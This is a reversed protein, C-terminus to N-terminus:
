SLYVDLLLATSYFDFGHLEVPDGVFEIKLQSCGTIDLDINCAATTTTIEGSEYILQDDVYILCKGSYGSDCWEEAVLSGTLRAFKKNPYFLMYGSQRGAYSELSITSFTLVNEYEEGFIDQAIEEIECGQSDEIVHCEALKIPLCATYEEIAAAFETCDYDPQVQEITQIAEAFSREAALASAQELTQKKLKEEYTTLLSERQESTGSVSIEERLYCVVAQLGDTKELEACEAAIRLDESESFKESFEQLKLTLETDGPLIDLADYLLETIAAYDESGELESCQSLVSERYKDACETRLELADDYYRYGPNVDELACYAEKWKEEDVYRKATEYAITSDNDLSIRDMAGVAEGSVADFSCLGQLIDLATTYDYDGDYYKEEVADIYTLLWENAKTRDENSLEWYTLAAEEMDQSKVMSKFGHLERGSLLVFCIVGIALVALIAVIIGYKKNNVTKRPAVYEMEEAPEAINENQSDSEVDISVKTGCGSCFEAHDPLNKGCNKCYM